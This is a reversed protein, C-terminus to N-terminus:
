HHWASNVAALVTPDTMVANSPNTPDFVAGGNNLGFSAEFSAMAQVLTNIQTDLKLGSDSLVVDNLQAYNAGGTFWNVITVSDKTGLLDLRLNAGSASVNGASDVRDLWVNTDTIGTGLMLEGAAVNSSAV